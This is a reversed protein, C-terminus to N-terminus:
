EKYQLRLRDLKRNRFYLLSDIAVMAFNIGYPILLFGGAGDQILVKAIGAVYGVLIVALFGISKGESTGSRWSKMISIPWAAGFCTLMVTELITNM